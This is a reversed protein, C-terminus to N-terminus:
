EGILELIQNNDLNNLYFQKETLETLNSEKSDIVFLSPNSFLINTKNTTYTSEHLLKFNFSTRNIKNGARNKTILPKSNFLNVNFTYDETGDNILILNQNIYEYLSRKFNKYEDNNSSIIFTVPIFDSRNDKYCFKKVLDIIFSNINERNINHIHIIHTSSNKKINLATKKRKVIKKFDVFSKERLVYSSYLINKCSNLKLLLDRKTIKRNAEDSQIALDNIIKIANSFYVIKAEESSLGAISEFSSIIDEQLDDYKQTL